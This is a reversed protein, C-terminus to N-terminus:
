APRTSTADLARLRQQYASLARTAAALDCPRTWLMRRIDETLTMLEPDEAHGLRTARAQYADIRGRLETRRDILGTALELAERVEREAAKVATHLEDLAHARQSWGVVNALSSRRDRLGPTRDPPAYLATDAILERARARALLEDRHLSVVGAIAADIERLAEDWRDRVAKVTTFRAALADVEKGLAALVQAPRRSTLSLPDSSCARDLDHVRATLAAIAAVDPDSPGTALEDADARAARLREALPALGDIFAQHASWCQVVLDRVERFADDMRTTLEDLTITEVKEVDGTIRREVVTRAVEVSPERLLRRLETAEQEGPRARRDRLAAAAATVSRYVTFDQWTRALLERAAGWREATRGTLPTTSLLQHGPHQELDVLSAAIQAEAALRRTLEALLADIDHEDAL